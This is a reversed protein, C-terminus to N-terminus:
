SRQPAPLINKKQKKTKEGWRGNRKAKDDHAKQIM